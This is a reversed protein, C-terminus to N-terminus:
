TSFMASGRNIYSRGFSSKQCYRTVWFFRHGKGLPVCIKKAKKMIGEKGELSKSLYYSSDM